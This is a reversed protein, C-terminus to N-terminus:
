CFMPRVISKAFPSLNTTRSPRSTNMRSNESSVYAVRAGKKGAVVQQGVAQLLHTKGLGVGGYLFLPNYAKGPSEAVAKAAAYAFNNNNGVVFTDFTNKPNFHLDGNTHVKEAAPEVARLKSAAVSPKAPVSVAAGPLSKFKVQLKCGAAVAVADQILGLYNDKLWVECFENPAEITIHHSDATEARLPSFWM